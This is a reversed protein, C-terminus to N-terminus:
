AFFLDAGLSLRQSKILLAFGDQVSSLIGCISSNDDNPTLTLATTITSCFCTGIDVRPDYTETQTLMMNTHSKDLEEEEMHQFESRCQGPSTRSQEETPISTLVPLLRHAWSALNRSLFLM